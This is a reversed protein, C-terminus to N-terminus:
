RRKKRRPRAPKKVPKTRTRTREGSRDAKQFAKRIADQQHEPLQEMLWRLDPDLLKPEGREDLLSRKRWRQSGARVAREAELFCSATAGPPIWIRDIDATSKARFAEAIDDAFRPDERVDGVLYTLHEPSVVALRVWEQRVNRDDSERFARLLREPTMRVKRLLSQLAAPTPPVNFLLAFVANDSLRSLDDSASLIARAVDHRAPGLSVDSTALAEVDDISRASLKACRLIIKARKPSAELVKSLDEVSMTALNMKGLLEEREEATLPVVTGEFREVLEDQGMPGVISEVARDHEQRNVALFVANVGWEVLWQGSRAAFSGEEVTHRHVAAIHNATHDLAYRVDADVSRGLAASLPPTLVRAATAIAGDSVAIGDDDDSCHAALFHALENTTVVLGVDGREVARILASPWGLEYARGDAQTGEAGVGLTGDAILLERWNRTVEDFPLLKLLAYQREALAIGDRLRERAVAVSKGGRWAALLEADTYDELGRDSGFALLRHPIPHLAVAHGPAGVRIDRLDGHFVQAQQRLQDWTGWSQQFARLLPQGNASLLTAARELDNGSLTRLGDDICMCVIEAAEGVADLDRIDRQHHKLYRFAMNVVDVTFVELDAIDWTGTELCRDIAQALFPRPDHLVLAQTTTGKRAVSTAM